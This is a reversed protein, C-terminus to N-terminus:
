ASAVWCALSSHGIIKGVNREANTLFFRFMESGLSGSGRERAGPWERFGAALTNFGRASGHVASFRPGKHGQDM